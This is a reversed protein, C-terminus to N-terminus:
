ALPSKLGHCHSLGGCAGVGGFEFGRGDSFPVTVDHVPLFDPNRANLMRVPHDQERAGCWQGLDGLFRFAHGDEHHINFLGHLAAHRDTGDHVHDVVFRIFDKKVVKFNRCFVQNALFALPEFVDQIAQIGFTNQDSRFANTVGIPKDVLCTTVGIFAHHKIPRNAFVLANLEGNGVGVNFGFRGVEHAKLGATEKIRAQRTPWLRIHCLVKCGLGRELRGIDAQLGM